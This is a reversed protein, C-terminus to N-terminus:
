TRSLKAVPSPVASAVWVELPGPNGGREEEFMNRVVVAFHQAAAQGDRGVTAETAVLPIRLEKQGALDVAFRKVQGGGVIRTLADPLCVWALDGAQYGDGLTIHLELADGVVVRRTARGDKELAVTVSAGAQYRAWDEEVLRLVEVAVVGEVAAISGIDGAHTCAEATTLTQGDVQVKGPGVIGLRQLEVTLAMAAVSDVTSHLGGDPGLDQYVLNALELAKPRDAGARLLVAAAYGTEVRREVAKAEPAGALYRRVFDLAGDTKQNFRIAMYASECSDPREVPWTLRYARTADDAMRLAEEVAARLPRSLTQIDQLLALYRLHLAAKPGYTMHPEDPYEPYFKFGRGPLFMRSEREIGALIAAEAQARDSVSAQLYEVASAVVKAATQECCHHAYNTTAMVLRRAPADIGPLITLGQVDPTRLLSQGPELLTMTRALRRLKGPPDVQAQMTRKHGGAEVTAAYLGPEVLFQVELPTKDSEASAVTQGDRTVTIKLPPALSGAMARGLAVDGHAVFPPVLLSVYPDLAATFRGEAATWDGEHIVTAEVLYDGFGPGLTLEVRAQGAVATVLGAFLVEPEEEVVAPPPAPPTPPRPAAEAVMDMFVAPAAAMVPAPPPMGGRAGGMSAALAAAARFGPRGGGFGPPQPVAGDALTVTPKGTGLNQGAGEVWGKIAAALRNQPTDTSLLRADKAVVYVSAGDPANVTVPVTDGPAAQRPTGVEATLKSPALTAAWGEWPAGDIWAGIALLAAPAPVDVEWVDGAAVPGRRYERRGGQCLTKFDDRAALSGLDGDGALWALDDFGEAVARRLWIMAESPNDERALCCAIYYAWFPHARKQWPRGEFFAARAEAFRGGKFLDQGRQYLPDSDGPHPLTSKPARDVNPDIIVVVSTQIELMATLRVRTTDVRELRFPSNSTGGELLYLGRVAVAGEAPLLSGSVEVGLRSFVTLSREAARSGVIPVTATRAADSILQLNISHPGAGTLPLRTRLLGESCSVTVQHLRRGAEMLDVRVDGDVPRGFSTLRLTVALENGDLRRELMAGVLPALRYEAVTFAAGPTETAQQELRAEYDGCPLGDVRVVSAGQANLQIPVKRVVRGQLSIQLEGDALPKSPDLALVHIVDHGERYLAKDTTVSALKLPSVATADISAGPLATLERHLLSIIEPRGPEPRLRDVWALPPKSFAEAALFVFAKGVPIHAGLEQAAAYDTFRIRDEPM